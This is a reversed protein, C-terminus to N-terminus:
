FYACPINYVASLVTPLNLAEEESQKRGTDQPVQAAWKEILSRGFHLAGPLRSGHYEPKIYEM